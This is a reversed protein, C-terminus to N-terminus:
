VFCEIVIIHLSDRFGNWNYSVEPALYPRTGEIGRIGQPSIQKSIGYDAIKIFVCSDSSWQTEPTPFKWVLVNEPKLDRYIFHRSHLYKLAEATQTQFCLLSLVYVYYHYTSAVIGTTSLSYYILFTNIIFM